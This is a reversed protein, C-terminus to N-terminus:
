RAMEIQLRIDRANNSCLTREAILEQSWEGASLRKSIEVCRNEFAAELELLKVVRAIDKPDILIEM